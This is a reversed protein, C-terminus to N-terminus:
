PAQFYINDPENMDNLAKWPFHGCNDCSFIVHIANQMENRKCNEWIKM